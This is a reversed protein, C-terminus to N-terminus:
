LLTELHLDDGRGGTRLLRQLVLRGANEKGIPGAVWRRKPVRDLGDRIKHPFVHRNKADAQPVLNKPLGEASFGELQLKPMTTPILGHLVKLSAFDFDSGLVM